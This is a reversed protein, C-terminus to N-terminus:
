NLLCHASKKLLAITDKPKIIDQRWFHFNGSEVQDLDMELTTPRTM